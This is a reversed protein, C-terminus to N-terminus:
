TVITVILTKDEIFISDVDANLVNAPFDTSTDQIVWKRNFYTRDKCADNVVLQTNYKVIGIIDKFQM